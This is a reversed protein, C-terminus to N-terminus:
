KGVVEPVDFLDHETETSGLASPPRMVRNVGDTLGTPAGPCDSQSPEGTDSGYGQQM